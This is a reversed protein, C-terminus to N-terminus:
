HCFCIKLDRDWYLFWLLDCYFLNFATNERRFANIRLRVAYYIIGIYINLKEPQGHAAITTMCLPDVHHSLQRLVLAGAIKNNCLIMTMMMAMVTM